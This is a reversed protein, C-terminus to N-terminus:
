SEFARMRKAPNGMVTSGDKVRAFVSSGSGVTAYAGVGIGERITAGSGILTCEGISVFGAIQAGPNIQVYDGIEADHGIGGCFNIYVLKGLVVDPSVNVQPCIITGEGIIVDDAVVATQHVLSVFKFGRASMRDYIRRKIAPIGVAMVALNTGAEDPTVHDSFVLGPLRFKAHEAANLTSYGVIEYQTKVWSTIERAVGGSGVFLIKEMM